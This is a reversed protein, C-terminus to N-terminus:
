ELSKQRKQIDRIREGDFGSLYGCIWLDHVATGSKAEVDGAVSSVGIKCTRDKTAIAMKSMLAAAVPNPQQMFDRWSLQNLQVVAYNFKLVERDPFRVEYQCPQISKPREFSFVVIPYLFCSDTGKFRAKVVLDAEHRVGTTIDTFVEKRLEAAAGTM